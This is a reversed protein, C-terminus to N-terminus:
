RHVTCFKLILRNHQMCIRLVFTDLNVNKLYQVVFCVSAGLTRLLRVFPGTLVSTEFPSVLFFFQPVLLLFFVGSRSFMLLFVLGMFVHHEM